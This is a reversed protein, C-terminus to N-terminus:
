SGKKKDASGSGADKGDTAQKEMAYTSVELNIDLKEKSKFNRRVDMHTVAVVKSAEVEQFFTKVQDLTVDGFDVKVSRTVFGNRTVTGTPTVAGKFAFGAKQAAKELHTELGLLETGLTKTIDDKTDAAVGKEQLDAVRKIADRMKENRGEMADLGDHISLGLWVALTLPVAVVLLVVLRRERPSIREWFDRARDTIAM